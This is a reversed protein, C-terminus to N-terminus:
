HPTFSSPGPVFKIPVVVHAGEVPKGDCKAPSVRVDAALLLAHAGFGEGTPREAVVTCGFLSGNSHVACEILAAGGEDNNQPRMPYGFHDIERQDPFKVTRPPVIQHAPGMLNPSIAAPSATFSVVFTVPKTVQDRTLHVAPNDVSHSLM